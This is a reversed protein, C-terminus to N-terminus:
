SLIKRKVFVKKVIQTNKGFILSKDVYYKLYSIKKWV